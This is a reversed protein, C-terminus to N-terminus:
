PMSLPSATYPKTCPPRPAQFSSLGEGLSGDFSPGVAEHHLPSCGSARSEVNVAVCEGPYLEEM